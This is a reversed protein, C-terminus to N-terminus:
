IVNDSPSSRHRGCTLLPEGAMTQDNLPPETAYERDATRRQKPQEQEAAAPVPPRSRKGNSEESGSRRNSLSIIRRNPTGRGDLGLAASLTKSAELNVGTAAARQEASTEMNVDESSSSSNVTVIEMESSQEFNEVSREGNPVTRVANESSSRQQESSPAVLNSAGPPVERKPIESKGFKFVLNEAKILRNRLNEINKAQELKEENLRKNMAEADQFRATYIPLMQEYQEVQHRLIQIDKTSDKEKTASVMAEKLENIERLVAKMRVHHADRHANQTNRLTLAFEEIAEKERDRVRM